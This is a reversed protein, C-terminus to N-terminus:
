PLSRPGHPTSFEAHMAPQPGSEIIIRPENFVPALARRLADAEPHTLILHRLRLGNEPLATAPHLTGQWQILAPFHGDFPLKGDGPVAMRWRYDGRQLQVPVGCGPPCLPLAHDLDETGAVWNTLSPKGSFNDLNFWRPWNPKIFDPDAAIVELYLDGVGMLRNHTAMHAHKGGEAMPLGLREEVLSVGEELAEASIAIHDFRLQM